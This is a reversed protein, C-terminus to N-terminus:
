SSFDMFEHPTRSRNQLERELQDIWSPTAFATPMRQLTLSKSAQCKTFKATSWLYSGAKQRLAIIDKIRDSKQPALNPNELKEKLKAAKRFHWSAVLHLENVKEGFAKPSNLIQRTTSVLDTVFSHEIRKALRM